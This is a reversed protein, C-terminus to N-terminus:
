SFTDRLNTQLCTPYPMKRVLSQKPLVWGMTCPAVRSFSDWPPYSHLGLLSPLPLQYTVDEVAETDTGAELELESKGWDHIIIESTFYTREEGLKEKSWPMKDCCHFGLICLMFSKFVSNLRSIKSFPLSISRKIRSWQNGQLEPFHFAGWLVLKNVQIAVPKAIQVECTDWTEKQRTFTIAGIINAHYLHGVNPYADWTLFAHLHTWVWGAVMVMQRSLSSRQYFQPSVTPSYPLSYSLGSRWWNWSQDSTFLIHDQGTEATNRHETKLFSTCM